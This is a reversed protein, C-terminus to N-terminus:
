GQLKANLKNVLENLIPLLHRSAEIIYKDEESKSLETIELDPNTSEAQYRSIAQHPSAGLIVTGSLESEVAVMVLGGKTVFQYVPAGKLSGILKKPRKKDLQNQNIIM